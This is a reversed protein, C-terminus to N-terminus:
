IKNYQIGGITVTGIGDVQIYKGYYLVFKHGGDRFLKFSDMLGSTTRELSIKGDPIKGDSNSNNPLTDRGGFALNNSSDTSVDFDGDFDFDNDTDFDADFDFDFSASSSSSGGGIDFDFDINQAAMGALIKVGVRVSGNVCDRLWDPMQYSEKKEKPVLEKTLIPFHSLEFLCNEVFEVLLRAANDKKQRDLERDSNNLFVTIEGNTYDAMISNGCIDLNRYYGRNLNIEKLTPLYKLAKSLSDETFMQFLRFFHPLKQGPAGICISIDWYNKVFLNKNYTAYYIILRDGIYMMHQYKYSPEYWDGMNCVFKSDEFSISKDRYSYYKYENM